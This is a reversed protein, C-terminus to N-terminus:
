WSAQEESLELLENTTLDDLHQLGLTSIMVNKQAWEYLRRDYEDLFCDDCFYEYSSPDRYSAQNGCECVIDIDERPDPTEYNM